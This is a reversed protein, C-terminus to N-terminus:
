KSHLLLKLKEKTSLQGQSILERNLEAADAMSRVAIVKSKQERISSLMAEKVGAEKIPESHRIAKSREVEVIKAVEGVQEANLKKIQDFDYHEKTPYKVDEYSVDITEDATTAFKAYYSQSLRTIIYSPSVNMRSAVRGVILQRLGLGNMIEKQIHQNVTVEVEVTGSHNVNLQAVEVEDKIAALINAMLKLDERSGMNIYKSKAETYIWCYEELRSRKVGLRIDSFTSRHNEIKVAILENNDARFKILHEIAIPIQWEEVVIKHVEQVSFMRGYLEILELRRSELLKGTMSANDKSKARYLGFAKIKLGNAKMMLTDYVGKKKLYKEQEDAPLGEIMSMFTPKKPAGIKIVRGDSAIYEKTTLQPLNMMKNWQTYAEKDIATEELDVRSMDIGTTNLQNVRGKLDKDM